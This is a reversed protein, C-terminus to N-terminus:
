KGPLFIMLFLMRPDGKDDLKCLRIIKDNKTYIDSCTYLVINKGNINIPLKKHITKTNKFYHPNVIYGGNNFSLIFKIFQLFNFKGKERKELPLETTSKNFDYYSLLRNKDINLRMVARNVFLGNKFLYYNELISTNPIDKRTIHNPNYRKTNVDALIAGTNKNIYIGIIQEAKLYEQMHKVLRYIKTQLKSDLTTIVTKNRSNDAGELGSIGKLEVIFSDYVKTLGEIPTFLKGLPYIRKERYPQFEFSKYKICGFQYLHFYPKLLKTLKEKQSTTIFTEYQIYYKTTHFHSTNIGNKSLINKVQENATKFIKIRYLLESKAITKNDDTKITSKLTIKSVNFHRNSISYYCKIKKVGLLVTLVLFIFVFM